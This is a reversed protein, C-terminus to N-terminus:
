LGESLSGRVLDQARQSEETKPPTGEIASKVLEDLVEKDITYLLMVTYADEDVEGEPTFYRRQMWFSDVKRLGSFQAESLSKTVQEMYTEVADLDGVSAGSFRSQVRTNILKAVEANAQMNEAYMEAGTRSGARPSEVKFVYKDAYADMAELETISAFVWEPPERFDAAKYDLLEPRKVTTKPADSEEEKETAPAAEPASKCAFSTVLFFALVVMTMIWLIKKM